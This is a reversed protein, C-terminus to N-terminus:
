AAMKKGHGNKRINERATERDTKLRPYSKPRRKVARPEVRGPRNGVKIQAILQYVKIGETHVSLVANVREISAVWIQLTHKFSMERPTRNSQVAAESMLIRIVNYALMYIWLEKKCMHATKCSLMEMGLVSKINRLDLEVHWRAYYLEELVKKPAFKKSKITTILVKKSVKVERVEITDPYNVYEEPSM